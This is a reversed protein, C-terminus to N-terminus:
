PKCRREREIRITRPLRLNDAMQTYVGLRIAAENMPATQLRIYDVNPRGLKISQQLKELHAQINKLESEMM